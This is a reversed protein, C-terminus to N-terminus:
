EENSGGRKRTMYVNGLILAVGLLIFVLGRTLTSIKYDLFRTAILLGITLSGKNFLRVDGEKFGDVAFYGGLILFYINYIIFGWQFFIPLIIFFINWVLIDKLKEKKNFLMALVLIYFLASIWFVRDYVLEKYFFNNDKFTLLYAMVITMIEGSKELGVPIIYVGIFLAGYFLLGMKSGGAFKGYWSMVGALFILKSAIEGLASIGEKKKSLIFIASGLGLYILINGQSSQYMYLVISYLLTSVRGGALYLVPLSLSSWALYFGTEDGSINYMQSIMAISLGVMLILFVGAGSIFEKNKELSYYLFGQGTFLGAIIVATKIERTLKSWNYAFLLIVGLGILLCGTTIFFNFFTKKSEEERAYFDKITGYVEDTIVGLGHLKALEKLVIKRRM